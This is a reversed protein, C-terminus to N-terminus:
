RLFDLLSPQIIRAGMSISARYINELVAYNMYTKAFDIDELKSRLEKFNLKEDEYKESMLNLGQSVAGLSARKDLLHDLGTTVQEIGTQIQDLEEKRLANTLGDLVAFLDTELFLEEGTINGTVKVGPSIEWRIKGSDGSYAVSADLGEELREMDRDFPPSMTQHGGFVYRGEYTSNGIQVLTSTLGNLELALAERASASLTSTAGALALERARQLVDGMRDMSEETLQMWSTSADINKQYQDIRALHTNQGMVRAVKVPDDSPRSIVKGSSLQHQLRGMQALNTQINHLLSRTMQRHTIRM